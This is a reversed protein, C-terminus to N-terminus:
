RSAELGIDGDQGLDGLAEGIGRELISDGHEAREREFAARARRQLPQREVEFRGRGEQPRLAPGDVPQQGAVAQRDGVAADREVGGIEGPEVFGLAALDPEHEGAFAAQERFDALGDPQEGAVFPAARRVHRLQQRGEHHRVVRGDGAQELGRGVDQRRMAVIGREVAVLGARRRADEHQRGGDIGGDGPEPQM